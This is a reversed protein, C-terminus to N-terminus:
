CPPNNKTNMSRDITEKTTEKAENAKDFATDKAKQATEKTLEWAGQATQKAKEAVKHAAEKSSETMDEATSTAKNKLNEGTRLAENLGRKAANTVDQHSHSGSGAQAYQRAIVQLINPFCTSRKAVNSGLQGVKPIFFSLTHLAM